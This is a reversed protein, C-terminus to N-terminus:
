IFPYYLHCILNPKRFHVATAVVVNVDIGHLIINGIRLGGSDCPAVTMLADSRVSEYDDVAARYWLSIERHM